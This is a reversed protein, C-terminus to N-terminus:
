FLGGNFGIGLWIFATWIRMFYKNLIWKFNCEWKHRPMGLPRKGEPKYVLNIVCEENRGHKSCAGCM